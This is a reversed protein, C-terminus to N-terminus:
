ALDSDIAASPLLSAPSLCCTCHGSFPPTQWPHSCHCCLCGLPSSPLWGLCGPAANCIKFFDSREQCGSARCKWESSREGPSFGMPIGNERGSSVLCRGRSVPYHGGAQSKSMSERDSGWLPCELSAAGSSVSVLAARTGPLEGFGRTKSIMIVNKQIRLAELGSLFAQGNPQMKSIQFSNCSLLRFHVWLLSASPGPAPIWAGESGGRGRGVRGWSESCRLTLLHWFGKSRNLPFALKSHNFALSREILPLYVYRILGSRYNKFWFNSCM